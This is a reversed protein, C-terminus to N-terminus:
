WTGFLSYQKNVYINSVLVVPDVIFRKVYVCSPNSLTIVVFFLRFEPKSTLKYKWHNLHQSYTASFSVFASVLNFNAGVWQVMQGFVRWLKAVSVTLMKAYSEM